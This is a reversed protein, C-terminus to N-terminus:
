PVMILGFEPEEVQVIGSAGEDQCWVFFFVSFCGSKLPCAVMNQGMHPPSAYHRAEHHEAIHAIAQATSCRRGNNRPSNPTGALGM